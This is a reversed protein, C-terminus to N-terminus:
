PSLREALVDRILEAMGVYEGKQKKHPARRNPDLRREEPTSGFTEAALVRMLTAAGRREDEDRTTLAIDLAEM